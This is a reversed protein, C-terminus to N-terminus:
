VKNEEEEDNSSTTKKRTLVSKIKYWYTKVGLSIAVFFGIIVSMLASGTGPDIYAVAPQVWLTILIILANTIFNKIVNGRQDTV